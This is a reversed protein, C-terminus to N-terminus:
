RRRPPDRSAGTLIEIRRQIIPLKGGDDERLSAHPPLQAIQAQTAQIREETAPHSSLFSPASPGGKARLTQFFTVLGKPDWGASPMTRVAFADAQREADRGFQNLYTTAALAGGLQAANAGVGGGFLWAAVVLARYGIGTNRQRNYNKAIHRESVHGVEHAIVGVLESANRAALITGTNVYIHGAPAAFANIEADEVVYFRYVFPQPGAAAVIERGMDQVYDVVVEDRVLIVQASLERTMQQGLQQEDRISIPGCAVLCGAALLGGVRQGRRRRTAPGSRESCSPSM